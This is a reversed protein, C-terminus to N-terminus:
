SAITTQPKFDHEDAAIPILVRGEFLRRQTRIVNASLIHPHFGDRAQAFAGVTIIGSPTGLKLREVDAKDGLLDAVVSGPVAAASAIALAGTIPVAKHAQGVSIMRVSLDYDSASFTRRELTQYTCSRDILAIKPIAISRAATDADAAIGMRMSALRRLTELQLMLTGNAEIKSPSMAASVGLDSARVFVCPIAADVLSADVAAGDGLEFRDCSLGTPLLGRELTGGPDLFDLRVPAGTGSVGPLEFDGDVLAEGDRVAFHANIIKGSNTNHIRVLAPGDASVPILGEDVAFPGMASSMNGCNGGFDVSADRVSVQAFTCDIDADSRSSPGVVCVKSLSSIGGGMGNLQRGNADPSGMM